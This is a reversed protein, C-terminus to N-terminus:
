IDIFQKKYVHELLKGMLSLYKVKTSFEGFHWIKELKNLVNSSQEPISHYFQFKQTKMEPNKLYELCNKKRM